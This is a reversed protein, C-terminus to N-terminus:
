CYFHKGILNLPLSKLNPISNKLFCPQWVLIVVVTLFLRNKKNTKFYYEQLIFLDEFLSMFQSHSYFFIKYGFFHSSKINIRLLQILFIEQLFIKLYTVQLFIKQWFSNYHSSFIFYSNKFFRVVFTM